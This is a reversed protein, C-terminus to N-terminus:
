RSTAERRPRRKTGDRLRPMIGAPTVQGQPAILVVKDGTAVGLSRALEQGLVIGFEGSRLAELKGARM